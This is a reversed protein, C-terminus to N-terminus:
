NQSFNFVGSLTIIGAGTSDSWTVLIESARGGRAPFGFQAFCDIQHRVLLSFLTLKSRCGVLVPPSEDIWVESQNLDSVSSESQDLAPDEVQAVFM